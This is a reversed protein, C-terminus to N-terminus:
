SSHNETKLISVHSYSNMVIFGGKKQSICIVDCHVSINWLVYNLFVTTFTLPKEITEIISRM